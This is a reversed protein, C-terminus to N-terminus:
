GRRGSIGDVEGVEVDICGVGFCEFFCLGFVGVVVVENM